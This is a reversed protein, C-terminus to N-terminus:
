RSIWITYLPAHVHLIVHPYRTNEDCAWKARGGLICSSQVNGFYVNADCPPLLCKARDRNIWGAGGNYDALAFAMREDGVAFARRSWLDHDYIVLARLSWRPDTPCGAPDGCLEQLAKSRQIDRATGPTFQGLGSAFKSRAGIDWHSEQHVQGFFTDARFGMGFVRRIEGLLVPRWRAAERPIGKPTSFSVAAVEPAPQPPEPPPPQPRSVAPDPTAPRVTPPATSPAAPASGLAECGTALLLILGLVALVLTVRVVAVMWLRPGEPSFM